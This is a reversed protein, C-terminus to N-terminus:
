IEIITLTIDDTQDYAGKYLNLKEALTTKQEQLSLYSTEVLWAKFHRTKLKKGLEGGFQDVVGDSYLVIRDSKQLHFKIETFSENNESLGIPQKNGKLEILLSDRIILILQNAGSFVLEKENFSILAVDMGDKKESNSQNANLSNVVGKKLENLIQSPNTINKENVITNLQNIGIFSMFAGPVGHGTCDALAYINLNNIKTYWYFDGSVIDRPQFLIAIKQYQKNLEQQTPILSSQIRHAYTISDTIDKHKEEILYKQESIISNQNSLVKNNKFFYFLFIALAIILVVALVLIALQKQKQNESKILKLDKELLQKQKQELQINSELQQISSNLQEKEFSLNLRNKKSLYEYAMKYNGMKSYIQDFSDFIEVQLKKYSNLSAIKFASDALSLALKFNGVENEILSLNNLSGAIGISDHVKYRHSLGINLYRKASDLNNKRKLSDMGYQVLFVVGLNNYDNGLSMHRLNNQDDKLAKTFYERAMEWDNKNGYAIGINNYIGSRSGKFRHKKIIFLQKTFQEIAKQSNGQAINVLGYEGYCESLTFFKNNKLAQTYVLNTYHLCSDIEGLLRYIEGKKLYREYLFDTSFKRFVLISKDLYSLALKPNNLSYITALKLYANSVASDNVSTETVHLLSDVSISGKSHLHIFTFLIIILFKNKM